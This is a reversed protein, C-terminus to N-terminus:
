VLEPQISVAMKTASCPKALAAHQICALSFYRRLTRFHCKGCPQAGFVGMWRQEDNM